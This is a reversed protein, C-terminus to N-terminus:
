APGEKALPAFDKRAEEYEADLADRLATARTAAQTVVERCLAATPIRTRLTVTAVYTDDGTKTFESFHIDSM